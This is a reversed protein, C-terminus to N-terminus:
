KRLETFYYVVFSIILAIVVSTIMELKALFMLGLTGGVLVITPLTLQQEM